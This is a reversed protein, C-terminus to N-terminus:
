EEQPALYTMAAATADNVWKDSSNDYVVGLTLSDGRKLPLGAPNEFPDNRLDILKNGDDVVAEATWFPLVDKNSTLDVSIGYNQIAGHAVILRYPAALTYTAQTRTIKDPEVAIPKHTCTDVDILMPKVDKINVFENMPRAVLTLQFYVNVQDNETPNRMVAKVEIPDSQLLPYGYGRPFHVSTLTSTAVFFPNGVNSSTCLPNEERLNAVIASHLLQGDLEAGEANVIKPEFGVVWMPRDLQVNLMLPAAPQAETGAPLDIPGINYVIREEGAENALTENIAGAADGAPASTDTSPRVQPASSGQSCSALSAITILLAARVVRRICTTHM